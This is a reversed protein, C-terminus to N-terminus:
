CMISGKTGTCEKTVAGVSPTRHLVGGHPPGGTVGDDAGGSVEFDVADGRCQDRQVLKCAGAVVPVVRPLALM